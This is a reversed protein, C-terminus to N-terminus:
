QPALSLDYIIWWILTYVLFVIFYRLPKSKIIQFKDSIWFILTGFVIYLIFYYWPMGLFM